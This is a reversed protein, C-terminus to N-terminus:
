ILESEYGLEFWETIKGPDLDRRREILRRLVEERSGGLREISQFGSDSKEEGYQGAIGDIDVAFELNLFDVIDRAFGKHVADIGVESGSEEAGETGDAHTSISSLSAQGTSDVFGRLTPLAIGGIHTMVSTSWQGKGTRNFRMTTNRVLYGCQNAHVLYDAEDTGLTDELKRQLGKAREEKAIERKPRNKLRRAVQKDGIVVELGGLSVPQRFDGHEFVLGGMASDPEVFTSWNRWGSPDDDMMRRLSQQYREIVPPAAIEDVIAQRAADEDLSMGDRFVQFATGYGELDLRDRLAAAIGEATTWVAIESAREHYKSVTSGKSLTKTSFELCM